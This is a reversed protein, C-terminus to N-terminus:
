RNGVLKLALSAADKPYKEQPVVEEAPKEDKKPKVEVAPVPGFTVEFTEGKGNTERWTSVGAKRLEALKAALATTRM